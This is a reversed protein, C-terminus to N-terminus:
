PAPRLPAQVPFRRGQKACIGRFTSDEVVEVGSWLIQVVEAVQLLRGSLMVEVLATTNVFGIDAMPAPERLEGCTIERFPVNENGIQM